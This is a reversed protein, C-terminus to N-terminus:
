EYVLSKTEDKYSSFSQKLAEVWAYHGERLDCIEDDKCPLMKIYEVPSTASHLYCINEGIFEDCNM